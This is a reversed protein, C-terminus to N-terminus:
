TEIETILKMMMKWRFMWTKEQLSELIEDNMFRGRDLQSQIGLLFLESNEASIVGIIDEEFIKLKTSVVPVGSAIYEYLKMPFMSNTYKNILTPLIGVNLGRLYKPLDIYPKYGLFFVNHKKKLEECIKNRQGEIEEGIFVWNWDPKKSILEKLLEFNLKFDSLAGIYGIRPEPIVELDKPIDGDYRAVVFHDLDVVNSFYYSRINVKLCKKLLEKSTVFVAAARRLLRYEEKEFGLIDIGPVGSLDDVCHYILNKHRIHSLTQLVYPHYTWVIPHNLNLYWSIIAIYIGLLNQNIFKIAWHAHFFPVAIPSLVWINKKVRRLPFAVKKLRKFLRKLDDANIGPARIGISEVYLVQYGQNSFEIAM